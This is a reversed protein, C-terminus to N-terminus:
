SKFARQLVVAHDRSRLGGCRPMWVEKRRMRGDKLDTWTSKTSRQACLARLRSWPRQQFKDNQRLFSHVVSPSQFLETGGRGNKEKATSPGNARSVFLSKHNRSASSRHMVPVITSHKALIQCNNNGYFAIKIENLEDWNNAIKLLAFFKFLKQM